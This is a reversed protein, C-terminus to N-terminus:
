HGLRSVYVQMGERVWAVDTRGVTILSIKM